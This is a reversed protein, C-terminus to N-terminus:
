TATTGRNSLRARLRLRTGRTTRSAAVLAMSGKCVLPIRRVVQMAILLRLLDFGVLLSASAPRDRWCRLRQRRRGRLVVSFRCWSNGTFFLLLIIILGAILGAISTGCCSRVIIFFFVIVRILEFEKLRTFAWSCM